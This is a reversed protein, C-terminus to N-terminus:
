FQKRQQDETSSSRTFTRIVGDRKYFLICGYEDGKAEDCIKALETVYQEPFYPNIEDGM